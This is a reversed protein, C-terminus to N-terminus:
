WETHQTAKLEFMGFVFHDEAVAFSAFGDRVVEFNFRVASLVAEAGEVGHAVFVGRAQGGASGVSVGGVAVELDDSWGGSMAM